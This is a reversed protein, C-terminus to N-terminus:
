LNNDGCSWFEDVIEALELANGAYQMTQWHDPRLSKLQSTAYRDDILVIVGRDEERRIVRGAAQLVRNIGPYTYAYDFGRERTNDYYDRLINRENSIGPLGTGVIVVGILRDGPLDVGESFSGGLVCFGVRLRGDDRFADLFSERQSPTMGRAQLVTPVKPYRKQFQEAVKEMYEYSPFYAIYNGAKASVSAAILSAIKKYSSARDEYRTSVGTVAVLCSQEPRYPSPLSIRVAGKGGGLIDAFYEPPTLTASFFVAAHARGLCADLVSSPDLCILRLTYVDQEMLVFTLFREDYYESIKELRKLKVSLGYIGPLLEAAPERQRMWEECAARAKTVLPYFSEMGQRSLYYGSERGEEDKQMTDKCLRRFSRMTMGLTELPPRLREETEPLGCLVQEVERSQLSASYMSTARDFLNHAEDILFAYRNEKVADPLFYRRLYVQPDFAYNYDCILIDCFESLELQFEYPCIGHERAFQLIATASFGNQAELARCVATASRDYFGKAYPCDYPNCHRSIGVPDAKAMENQCLQERATLVVTRLQAGASFLQSAARYAERRTTAKATLYFIRDVAGEGLARVAPYLTSLTKGIGTPAEAFLRKGAKIDRYCERMLIDQGQRLGGYPFRAAKAAPLRQLHREILIRARYEIRALLDFYFTELSEVSHLDTHHRIEGDETRYYTLRTQISSLGQERCWFYAYCMVQARHRYSPPMEFARGSLTKIEDVTVPDGSLIGDARGSVEFCVDHFLVTSSLPVEARYGEGQAAQLKRHIEAGLVGREFSVQKGMGPRLDLDGDRYALACLEGVSLTIVARDVDYKM